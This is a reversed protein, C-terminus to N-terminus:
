NEAEALKIVKDAFEDPTMATKIFYGDAGAAQATMKIQENDLATLVVVKTKPLDKDKRITKLIDLGVPTRLDLPGLKEKEEPILLDLIVVGPKIEKIKKLAKKKNKVSYLYYYKKKFADEYMQRTLDEDEVLLFKKTQKM